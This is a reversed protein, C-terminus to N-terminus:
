WLSLPLTGPSYTLGFTVRYSTDRYGAIYIQQQRLDYRGTAHLDRFLTYTFGTGGIFSRYPPIGQGLSDISWYGGSISFSLKRIGMYSYTGLGSESRSTLYVGNGPSVSRAYSFGLSANKMKRNLSIEGTPLWNNARFVQITSTVGLIAAVAPPLAVSQLGVVGSQFAGGGVSLTWLPGLRTGLFGTYANIDSNGFFNPYQFHERQYRAGITTNRSLRYQYRAGATYGVVGILAASQRAVDFGAGELTFSSRASFLYTMGAGGQGFYTRSDFLLLGNSNIFGPLNVSGLVSPIGGLFNSYIGALGQLDFYLRRSQQYTYGIMLSHNSGDYFSNGNYHYFDGRYDIGVQSTRWSHVGYAGIVGEVGALGKLQILNGKSDVEVPQIGTDYIGNIGAYFRLDVQEGGRTGITGVGGTMVGPGLYDGLQASATSAFAVLSALAAMFHKM